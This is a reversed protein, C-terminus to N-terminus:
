LDNLSQQGKQLTPTYCTSPVKFTVIESPPLLDLLADTTPTKFTFNFDSDSSGLKTWMNHAMM